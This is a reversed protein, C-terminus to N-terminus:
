IYPKCFEWIETTLSDYKQSLNKIGELDNRGDIEKTSKIFEEEIKAEPDIESISYHDLSDKMGNANYDVYIELSDGNTVGVMLDNFNPVCTLLYGSGEHRFGLSINGYPDIQGKEMVLDILNEYTTNKRCGSFGLGAVILGATIISKINKM